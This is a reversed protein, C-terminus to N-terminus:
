GACWGGSGVLRRVNRWIGPRPRIALANTLAFERFIRHVKERKQTSDARKAIFAQGQGTAPGIRKPARGPRRLSFPRCSGVLGFGWSRPGAGLGRLVKRLDESAKEQSDVTAHSSLHGAAGM